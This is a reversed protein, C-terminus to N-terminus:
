DNGLERLERVLRAVPLGVVNYYDGRIGKVLMRGLGQIGYAGAKDAPEGSAVYDEIESESLEFFEVETTEVFSRTAEGKVLAVGTSVFHTRGSLEELMRRADAADRPKGLVAGAENWVITDAAVITEDASPAAARAADAKMRALREVLEPPTEGSLPTEDVDQPAIEISYGAEELIQKRRPSASALIM